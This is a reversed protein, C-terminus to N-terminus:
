RVLGSAEFTFKIDTRAALTETSIYKLEGDAQKGWFVNRAPQFRWSGVAERISELFADSFRSPINMRQWSPRVESVTGDAGITITVYVICEGAHAALAATPYVPSALQGVVSPPIRNVFTSGISIEGKAASESPPTAAPELMEFSSKGQPLTTRCGGGVFLLAAVGAFHRLSSPKLLEKAAWFRARM